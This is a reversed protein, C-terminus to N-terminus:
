RGAVRHILATNHTAANYFKTHPVATIRYGAAVRPIM